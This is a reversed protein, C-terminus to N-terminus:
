SVRGSIYNSLHDITARQMILTEDIVDSMSVIGVMEDEVFVPLYRENIESMLEMCHQVTDRPAVTPLHTSMIEAVTLQASGRGKLVVKRAYDRETMIGCYTRNEIVVVSGINRDAMLKLASLVNTTPTVSIVGASKRRLIDSVKHM